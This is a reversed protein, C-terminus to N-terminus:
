WSPGRQIDARMPTKAEVRKPPGSSSSFEPLEANTAIISDGVEAFAVINGEQPPQVRRFEPADKHLDLHPRWDHYYALDSKLVRHLHVANWV